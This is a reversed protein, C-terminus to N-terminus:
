AGLWRAARLGSVYAGDAYGNREAHTHEGALVLRGHVPHGLLELMSPDAGLPCSTYVGGAFPDNTWSTVVAAVPEPV